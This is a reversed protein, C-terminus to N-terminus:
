VEDFNFQLFYVDQVLNKGTVKQYGLHLDSLGQVPWKFDGFLDSPLLQCM